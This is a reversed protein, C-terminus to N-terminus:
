CKNLASCEIKLFSVRLFQVVQFKKINKDNFSIIDHMIGLDIMEAPRQRKVNWRTGFIKRLSKRMFQETIEYINEVKEENLVTSAATALKLQSLLHSMISNNKMSLSFHRLTGGVKVKVDKKTM